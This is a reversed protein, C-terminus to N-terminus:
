TLHIIKEGALPDTRTLFFIKYCTGKSSIVVRPDSLHSKKIDLPNVIIM